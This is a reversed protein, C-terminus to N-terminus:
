NAASERERAKIVRPQDRISLATSNMVGRGAALGDCDRGASGATEAKNFGNFAFRNPAGINVVRLRFKNARVCLDTRSSAAFIKDSL